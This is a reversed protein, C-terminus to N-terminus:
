LSSDSNEDGETEKQLGKQTHKQSQKREDNHTVERKVCGTRLEGCGFVVVLHHGDGGGGCGMELRM